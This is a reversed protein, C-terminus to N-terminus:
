NKGVVPRRAGSIAFLAIVLLIVICNVLDRTLLYVLGTLVIGIGAVVLFWGAPKEHDIFESASWQIPQAAPTDISSNQNANYQWDSEPETASTIEEPPSQDQPKDHLPEHRETDHGHHKKSSEVPM